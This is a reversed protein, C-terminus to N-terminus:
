ADLFDVDVLGGAGPFFDLLLGAAACDRQDDDVAVRHSPQARVSDHARNGAAHFPAEADGTDGELLALPPRANRQLGEFSSSDGGHSQDEPRAQQSQRQRMCRGRQTLHLVVRVAEEHEIEHQVSTQDAGTAFPAM